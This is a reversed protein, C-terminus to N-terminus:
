RFFAGGHMLATDNVHQKITQVYALAMEELM